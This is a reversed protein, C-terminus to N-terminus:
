KSGLVDLYSAVAAFPRKIEEISGTVAEHRDLGAAFIGIGLGLLLAAAAALRALEGGVPTRRPLAKMVRGALGPPPDLVPQTRLRAEVIVHLRCDECAELHKRTEECGM